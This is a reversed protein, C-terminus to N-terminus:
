LDDNQALITLARPNTFLKPTMLVASAAIQQTHALAEPTHYVASLMPEYWGPLSARWAPFTDPPGSYCLIHPSLMDILSLPTEPEVQLYVDMKWRQATSVLERLEDPPLLDSYLWIASAGAARAAVVGYADLVYNQYIVPVDPLARTLLLLDETDAPYITHDTFFAVADAGEHLCAIATGVPDYIESLSIQAICLPADDWELYIPRSQMHALDFLAALPTHQKRVHLNEYKSAIVVDRPVDKLMKKALTFMM